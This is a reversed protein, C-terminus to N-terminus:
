GYAVLRVRPPRFLRAKFIGAMRFRLSSLLYWCFELFARHFLWLRLNDESCRSPCSGPICLLSLFSVVTLVDSNMRADTSLLWFMGVVVPLSSRGESDRSTDSGLFAVPSSRGCNRFITDVGLAACLLPFYFQQAIHARFFVTLFHATPFM